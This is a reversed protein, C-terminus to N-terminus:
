HCIGCQFVCWGRSGLHDPRDTIICRVVITHNPDDTCVLDCMYMHMCTHIFVCCEGELEGKMNEGLQNMKPNGQYRIMIACVTMLAEKTCKKVLIDHLDENQLLRDNRQKITELDGDAIIREEKLEHVIAIADVDNCFPTRFRRLFDEVASIPFLQSVCVQWCTHENTHTSVLSFYLATTTIWTLLTCPLLM